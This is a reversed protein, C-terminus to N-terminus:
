ACGIGVLGLQKSLKCYEFQEGADLGQNRKKADLYQWRQLALTESNSQALERVEELQFAFVPRVDYFYSGLGLAGAIGAIIGYKKLGKEWDIQM